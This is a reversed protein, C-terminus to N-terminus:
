LWRLYVWSYGATKNIIYCENAIVLIIILPDSVQDM